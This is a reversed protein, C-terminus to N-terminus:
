PPLGRSTDAAKSRAEKARKRAERARQKAEARRLRRLRARERVAPGYAAMVEGTVRQWEEESIARAHLFRWRVISSHRLTGDERFHPRKGLLYRLAGDAPQSPSRDAAQAKDHAIRTGLVPQM